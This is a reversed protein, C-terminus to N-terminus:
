SIRRKVKSKKLGNINELMTEIKLNEELLDLRMEDLHNMLDLVEQENSYKEKLQKELVDIEEVTNLLIYNTNELCNKKDDINSIIKKYISTDVQKKTFISNINKIRNNLIIGSTLTALMKNKFIGFPILGIGINISHNFFKSIRDILSLKRNNMPLLNIDRKIKTIDQNTLEIDKKVTNIVLELQKKDIIIDKKINQKNQDKRIEELSLDIYEILNDIGKDHYLLHNPDINSIENYKSLNIFKANKSLKLYEKKLDIIKEKLLLMELEKNEIETNKIKFIEKYTKNIVNNLEKIKNKLNKEENNGKKIIKINEKSPIISKMKSLVLNGKKISNNKFNIVVKKSNDKINKIKNDKISHNIEKGLLENKSTKIKEKLILLKDIETKILKNDERTKINELRQLKNIKKDVQKEYVKLVSPTTENIIAKEIKLADNNIKEIENEINLPKRKKYFLYSIGSGIYGFFSIFFIVIKNKEGKEKKLKRKEKQKVIYKKIKYFLTKLFEKIKLFYKIIFKKIILIKEKIKNM